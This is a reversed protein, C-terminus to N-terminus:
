FTFALQVTASLFTEGPKQDHHAAEVMVGAWAWPDLRLGLTHKRESPEPPLYFPDDQDADLDDFRYYPRVRGLRVSGQVYLGQSVFQRGTAEERHDVRVFEALVQTERRDYAAFAAQIREEM